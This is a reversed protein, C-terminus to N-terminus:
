LEIQNRISPRRRLLPWGLLLTGLASLGFIGPEPIRQGSFQIADLLGGGQLLLEGTQNAFTSIDGGFITYTSTSGLAVLPIPQGAFTVTYAGTGYFMLSEATAPVRGTQGIAATTPPGATSPQLSVTYNGELIQDPFWQPGYIAVAAGGLSLNNHFMTPRPFGGIYVDWGPVGNSVAVDSGYQGAPVIPVNAAEFNLNQFTGQGLAGLVSLASLVVALLRPGKLSM